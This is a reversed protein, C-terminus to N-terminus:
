SSSAQIPQLIGQPSFAPFIPKRALISWSPIVKSKLEGNLLRYLTSVFGFNVIVDDVEIEQTEKTKVHALTVKTITDEGHLETIETPTIVNVKSALLNEVSHEHARFKDRRHILTVQEAIPELMLAWDVASDGGGSILM